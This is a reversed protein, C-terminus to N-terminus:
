IVCHWPIFSLIIASYIAIFIWPVKREIKTFPWYIDPEKGRGLIEWEADYLALPLTQEIEHIVKYKGDSLGDYSCVIRYWLYCMTIGAISALIFLVSISTTDDRIAVFGLLAVIATNVALFFENAKLRQESNKEASNVYIKYQELLHENYQDGYQGKDASFLQSNKTNNGM